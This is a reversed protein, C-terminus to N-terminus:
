LRTGASQEDSGDQSVFGFQRGAAEKFVMGFPFGPGPHETLVVDREILYAIPEIVHGTDDAIVHDAPRLISETRKKPDRELFPTLAFCQFLLIIGDSSAKISIQPM